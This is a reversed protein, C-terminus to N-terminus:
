VLKIQARLSELELKLRERDVNLENIKEVLNAIRGEQEFNADELDAIKM